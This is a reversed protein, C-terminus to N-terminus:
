LVPVYTFEGASGVFTSAGGATTVIVHVTGSGKPSTATISSPSNVKVSTAATAGFTVTSTPTFNTGTITVETGGSEPGVKPSVETITPPPRYTFQDAPIIATRSVPTEVRVDVTGQGPPSVATISSDPNVCPEELRQTGFYVEFENDRESVFCGGSSGRPFNTGTITITTGGAEPGEDPSVRSVSPPEELVPVVGPFEFTGSWKATSACGHEDGPYYRGEEKEDPHTPFQEATGRLKLVLPKGLRLRGQGTNAGYSCVLPGAPMRGEEKETEAKGSEGGVVIQDKVSDPASFWFQAPDVEMEELWFSGLGSECDSEGVIERIGVKVAYTNETIRTLEAGDRIFKCFVTEKHKKGAVTVSTKARVNTAKMILTDGSRLIQGEANKFVLVSGKASKAAADTAGALSLVLLLMTILRARKIKAWGRQADELACSQPQARSLRAVHVGM